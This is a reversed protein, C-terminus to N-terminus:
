HGGAHADFPFTPLASAVSLFTALTSPRSRSFMVPHSDHARDDVSLRTTNEFNQEFQVATLWTNPPASGFRFRVDLAKSEPLYKPEVSGLYTFFPHFLPPTM